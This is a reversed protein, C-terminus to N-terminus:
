RTTKVLMLLVLAGSVLRITTFGAADITGEGLALRCFVSNAAFAILAFATLVAYRLWTSDMGKLHVSRRHYPGNSTDFEDFNKM